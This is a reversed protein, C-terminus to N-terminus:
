GRRLAPGRTGAAAAAGELRDPRRWTSGPRSSCKWLLKLSLPRRIAQGKLRAATRGGPIVLAGGKKFGGGVCGQVGRLPGSYGTSFGREVM